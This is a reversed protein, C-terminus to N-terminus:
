SRSRSAAARLIQLLAGLRDGGLTGLSSIACNIALKSWRKGALNRTIEDPRRVRARPGARRPSPRGRREHARARLRRAGDPRLGRARAHCRGLRGRGRGDPARGVVAAVREECLGNQLCLMTGDAALSALRRGRPPRSTTPSPPSCSPTSPGPPVERVVRGAVSRAPGEGRLQFGRAQHGRRDGRQALLRHRRKRSRHLSAAVTGGVAGCGM